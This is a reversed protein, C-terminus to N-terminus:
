LTNSAEYGLIVTELPELKHIKKTAKVYSGRNFMNKLTKHVHRLGDSFIIPIHHRSISDMLKSSRSLQWYCITAMGPM